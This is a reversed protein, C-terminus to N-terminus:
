FENITVALHKEHVWERSGDGGELLYKFSYLYSSDMELKIKIIKHLKCQYEIIDSINFVSSIKIEM